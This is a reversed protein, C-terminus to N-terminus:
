AQDKRKTVIDLVQMWSPETPLSSGAVHLRNTVMVVTIELDPLIAVAVGPFGTHGWAKRGRVSWIRGGLAQAPDPGPETFQRATTTSVFGGSDLARLVANGFVLLDAATSFLGAHGAVSAFAHFANGDNVEGVLVHERWRHFGQDSATVPYPDGTRVMEREIRDGSSSAAVVAGPVPTGYRTHHLGIPEVVLRGVADNLPGDALEEVVAGLLMFGLDSYHRARDPPYRLPLDAVTTLANGPELYTPWWEWLGGRHQLLQGVTTDAVPTGGVWPLPESLPAALDLQGRDALVMLAATTAVLKTVSGVDTATDVEMPQPEPLPGSGDFLQAHGSASWSTTGASSTAIVAGPPGGPLERVARVARDLRPDGTGQLHDM